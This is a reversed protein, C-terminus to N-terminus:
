ETPTVNDMPLEEPTVGGDFFESESDSGPSSLPSSPTDNESYPNSVSDAATLDADVDRTSLSAIMNQRLNLAWEKHQPDESQEADDLARIFLCFEGFSVVGDGTSDMMEYIEDVAADCACHKMMDTLLNIVKEKEAIMRKPAIGNFMLRAEHAKEYAAALAEKRAEIFETMSAARNHSLNQKNILGEDGFMLETAMREWHRIRGYFTYRRASPGHTRVIHKKDGRSSIDERVMNVTGTAFKDLFIVGGRIPRKVLNYVGKGLGGIAGLAGSEQAGSIPMRVVDTLGGVLEHGFNMYGEIMGNVLDRPGKVGWQVFRYDKRRHNKKGPLSHVVIDAQLSMKLKCDRCWKRALLPQRCFLSVDCVMDEVPLHRYFARVCESLGDESAFASAMKEAAAIMEPSRLDQFAQALRGATMRKIPIPKPGVGKEYVAQGWFFQDGFFPCIMTPKGARLGAATTGAGGHHVVAAMRPLLWDHPAPGLLYISSPLHDAKLDSWNSQVVVRAGVHQAAKSIMGMLESTNEIIMSGFGIFIPADGAGLYQAFDPPPVFKGVKERKDENLFINGVVDIHPGWDKAKPVLSPSWMKVFPVKNDFVM